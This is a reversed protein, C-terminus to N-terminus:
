GGLATVRAELEAVRAELKAVLEAIVDEVPDPAAHQTKPAFAQRATVRAADEREAKTPQRPAAM